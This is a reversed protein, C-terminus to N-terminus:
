VVTKTEKRLSFGGGRRFFFFVMALLLKLFAVRSGTLTTPLGLLHPHMDKVQLSRRNCRIVATEEGRWTHHNEVDLQPQQQSFQEDINWHGIFLSEQYRTWSGRSLIRALRRDARANTMDCKKSAASLAVLERPFLHAKYLSLRFYYNSLYKPTSYADVLQGRTTLGQIPRLEILSRKEFASSFSARERSL